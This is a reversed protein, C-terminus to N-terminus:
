MANSFFSESKGRRRAEKIVSEVLDNRGLKKLLSIYSETVSVLIKDPKSTISAQFAEIAKDSMQLSAYSRALGYYIDSKLEPTNNQLNLAANYAQIAEQHLNLKRRMDGLKMLDDLQAEKLSIDSLASDACDYKMRTYCIDALKRLDSTSLTGLASGIKLPLISFSHRDWNILHILSLVFVASFSIIYIVVKRSLRQEQKQIFENSELSELSESM